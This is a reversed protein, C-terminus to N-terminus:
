SAQIFNKFSKRQALTKFKKASYFFAGRKHKHENSLASTAFKVFAIKM